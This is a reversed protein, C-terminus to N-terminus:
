NPNHECKDIIAVPCLNKFEELREESYAIRIVTRYNFLNGTKWQGNWGRKEGQKVCCIITRKNESSINAYCLCIEQFEEWPRVITEAPIIYKMYLGDEHVEYHAGSENLTCYGTYFTVLALLFGILLDIIGSISGSSVLFDRIGICLFILSFLLFGGIYAFVAPLALSTDKVVPDSECASCLKM